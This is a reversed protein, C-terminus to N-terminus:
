PRRAAAKVEVGVVRLQGSLLEWSHVANELWLAQGPHLDLIGSSGDPLGLRLRARDLSILVFPSHTHMPSREGPSALAEFVRTHENELIVHHHTPDVTVPDNAARTVAAPAKGQRAAKTEVGIVQAQGSLLEWAHVVNQFWLVQAPHTDFITNSGDPATMRLRARGLSVFVLPHHSHMVSRAGPSALVQLVRVHDNEMIVQHHTPDVAVADPPSQALAAPAVLLLLSHVLRFRPKM